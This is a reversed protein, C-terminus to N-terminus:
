DGKGLMRRLASKAKQVLGSQAMGYYSRYARRGRKAAAIQYRYGAPLLALAGSTEYRKIEDMARAFNAPTIAKSGHMKNLLHVNAMLLTAVAQDRHQPCLQEMQRLLQRCAPQVTWHKETLGRNLASGPHVLYHYKHLKQYVVKEAKAFLRGMLLMDEYIAIDSPFEEGELLGRRILKNCMQGAFKQARHMEVVAEIGSMAYLQSEDAATASGDEVAFAVVSVDASNEAALQYLTEYFDPELWDDSDCFGLWQGKAQGLGLNRAASVGANEQHICRFRRDKEAMEQCLEGGGDTSGDDILLIELNEYTQDRLSDLCRGLFPKVNYIPVIVSILPLEM